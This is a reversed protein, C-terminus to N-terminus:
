PPTVRALGIVADGFIGRKVKLILSDGPGPEFSALSPSSRTRLCLRTESEDDFRVYLWERCLARAGLSTHTRLAKASISDVTTGVHQSLMSFILYVTVAWMASIVVVGLAGRAVWQVSNDHRLNAFKEPLHERTTPSFYWLAFLVAASTAILGVLCRSLASLELTTRQDLGVSGCIMWITGVGIAGM